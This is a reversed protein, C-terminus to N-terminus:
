NGVYYGSLIDNFDDKPIVTIKFYEPFVKKFPDLIKITKGSLLRFYIFLFVLRTHGSKKLIIEPGNSDSIKEIFYM